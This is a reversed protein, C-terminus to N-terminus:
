GRAGHRWVGRSEGQKFARLRRLAVLCIFSSISARSKALHATRDFVATCCFVLLPFYLLPLSPSLPLVPVSLSLSSVVSARCADSLSFSFTLSLEMHLVVTAPTHLLYACENDFVPVHMEKFVLLTLNHHNIYIPKHHRKKSLGWSEM